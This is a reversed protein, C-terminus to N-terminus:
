EPIGALTHRLWCTRQEVPSPPAHRNHGWVHMGLWKTVLMDSTHHLTADNLHQLHFVVAALDQGYTCLSGSASASSSSSFTSSLTVLWADITCALALVVQVRKCECLLRQVLSQWWVRPASAAQMQKIIVQIQRKSPRKLDDLLHAMQVAEATM